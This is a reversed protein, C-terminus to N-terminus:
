ERDEDEFTGMEGIAEVGVGGEAGEGVDVEEDGAADERVDAM